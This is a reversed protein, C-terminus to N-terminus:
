ARYESGTYFAYSLLAGQLLTGIVGIEDTLEHPEGGILLVLQVPIFLICAKLIWRKYGSLPPPIRRTVLKKVGMWWGIGLALFALHLFSSVATINLEVGLTDGRFIIPDGQVMGHIADAAFFALYIVVAPAAVKFRYKRLFYLLCIGAALLAYIILFDPRSLGSSHFSRGFYNTGWSYSSGEFTIRFFVLWPLLTRLSIWVWLVTFLRQHWSKPQRQEAM